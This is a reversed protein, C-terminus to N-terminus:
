RTPDFPALDFPAPEGLALGAALVGMLPGYTLGNAGLGTAVVVGDCGPLAGLLPFGDRTVPRFGIRTELVTAEALGPALTLAADLVQRQGAATVRHDFGADAERTAGVVVRGGPFGLLYHHGFEEGSTMVTPWGGTGDDPLQLHVIQGRMPGLALEAGLPRALETTWAGAALVVVDAEVRDGDVRVGRVRGADALLEARGSRRDVGAREAAVVAADRFLRGDVRGVGGVWLAPLDTRLVPFRHAAAGPTLVEVDGLGAWGRAAAAAVLDDAAGRLVHPDTGLTLGGVTAYSPDQGSDAALEAALTPWSQGALDSYAGWSGTAAPRWPQVIGAGASTARGAEGSEVLVVDAGRRALQWATTAGVIGAGVVVVRVDATM